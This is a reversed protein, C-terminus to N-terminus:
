AFEAASDFLAEFYSLKGAKWDRNKIKMETSDPQICKFESSNPQVPRDKWTKAPNFCGSSLGKGYELWTGGGGLTLSCACSRWVNAVNVDKAPFALVIIMLCSVVGSPTRRTTSGAVQGLIAQARAVDSRRHVFSHTVIKRAKVSFHRFPPTQCKSAHKHLLAPLDRGKEQRLWDDRLFLLIFAFVIM